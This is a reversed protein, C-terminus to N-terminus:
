LGWKYQSKLLLSHALSNNSVIHGYKFRNTVICLSHAPAGGSSGRNVDGEEKFYRRVIRVIRAAGMFDANRCNRGRSVGVYIKVNLM